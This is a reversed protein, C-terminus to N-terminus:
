YCSSAAACQTETTPPFAWRGRTGVRRCAPGASAAGPCTHMHSVPTSTRGSCIHPHTVSTPNHSRCISGWAPCTDMISAPKNNDDDGDDDKHIVCCAEDDDDVDDGAGSKVPCDTIKLVTQLQTSVTASQTGETLTASCAQQQNQPLTHQKMHQIQPMLERFLCPFPTQRQGWDSDLWTDVFRSTSVRPTSSARTLAQVWKGTCLLSM